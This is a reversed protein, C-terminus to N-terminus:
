GTGSTQADAPDKGEMQAQPSEHMHGPHVKCLLGDIAPPAAYADHVLGDEQAKQRSQVMNDSGAPMGGGLMSKDESADCDCSNSSQSLCTDTEASEGPGESRCGFKLGNSSDM